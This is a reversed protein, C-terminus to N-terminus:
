INNDLLYRSAYFYTVQCLCPPTKLATMTDGSEMARYDSEEWMVRTRVKRSIEDGNEIECVGKYHGGAM